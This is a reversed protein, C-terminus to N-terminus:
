LTYHIFGIIYKVQKNGVDFITFASCYLEQCVNIKKYGSSGEDDCCWIMLEEIIFLVNQDYYDKLGLKHLNFVQNVFAPTLM